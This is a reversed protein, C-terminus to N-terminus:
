DETRYVQPGPAPRGMLRRFASQVLNKNFAFQVSLESQPPQPEVPPAVSRATWGEAWPGASFATAAVLGQVPSGGESRFSTRTSYQDATVEVQLSGDVVSLAWSDLEELLAASGHDCGDCGCDPVSALRVAPDGAGISVTVIHQDSTPEHITLVLPVAGSASPVLVADRGGSEMPPLAWRVGSEERAWGRGLLVTAWARARAAVLQFKEPNPCREYEDETPVTGHPHPDPWGLSPPSSRADVEQLLACIERSLLQADHGHERLDDNRLEWWSKEPETM